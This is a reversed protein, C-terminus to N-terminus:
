TQPSSKSSSKKGAGALVTSIYPVFDEETNDQQYTFNMNGIQKDALYDIWTNINFKSAFDEAKRVIQISFEGGPFQKFIPILSVRSVAIEWPNQAGDPVLSDPFNVLFNAPNQMENSVHITHTDYIEYEM